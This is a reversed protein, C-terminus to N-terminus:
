PVTSPESEQGQRDSRYWRIETAEPATTLLQHLAQTLNPEVERNRQLLRNLLPVQRELYIQWVPGDDEFVCGINLTHTIGHQRCDLYWGWDEQGPQEVEHGLAALQPRLWLAVDEGFCCDNIFHPQIQTTNFTTSKFQVTNRVM